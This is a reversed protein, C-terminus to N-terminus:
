LVNVIKTKIKTSFVVMSPFFPIWLYSHKVHFHSFHKNCKWCKPIHWFWSYLITPSWCNWQGAWRHKLFLQLNCWKIYFYHCYLHLDFIQWTGLPDFVRESKCVHINTLLKRKIKVLLLMSGWGPEGAPKFYFFIFFRSPSNNM